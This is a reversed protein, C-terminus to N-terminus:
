AHCNDCRRSIFPVAARDEDAGHGFCDGCQWGDPLERAEPDAALLIYNGCDACVPGTHRPLLSSM